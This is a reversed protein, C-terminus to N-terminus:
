PARSNASCEFILSGDTKARYDYTNGGYKIIIQYGVVEGKAYVMGAAPCDLSADAYAQNSWSYTTPHLATGTRVLAVGLKQSLDSYAADIISTPEGQAHAPLVFSAFLLLVCLVIDYKKFRVSQRSM